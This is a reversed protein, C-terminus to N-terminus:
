LLQIFGLEWFCLLFRLFLWIWSTSTLSSFPCYYRPLLHIFRVLVLLKLKIKSACLIWKLFPSQCFRLPFRFGIRLNKCFAQRKCFNHQISSLPLLPSKFWSLLCNTQFLIIFTCIFTLFVGTSDRYLVVLIEFFYVWTDCSIWSFGFSNWFDLFNCM